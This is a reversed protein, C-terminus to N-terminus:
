FIGASTVGKNVIRFKVSSGLVARSSKAVLLRRLDSYLDDVLSVELSLSPVEAWYKGLAPKMMGNPGTVVDNTVVVAVRFRAAIYQFAIALHALLGLGEVYQDGTLVPSVAAKLSDVVIMKISALESNARRELSNRIQDVLQVLEGIDRIGIHCVRQMLQDPRASQQASSLIQRIREASFCSLTDVYLVGFHSDIVAHATLSHCLQTKGSTSAGVIETIQGTFVGGGIVDDVKRSGTSFVATTELFKDYLSAGDQPTPAFLAVLSRRIRIVDSYPLGTRGALDERECNLLDVVTRIGADRFKEVLPATLEPCLGIYLQTM